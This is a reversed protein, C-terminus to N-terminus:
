TFKSPSSPASCRGKVGLAGAVYLGVYLGVDVGVPIGVAVGVPIGVAAGVPIGVVDTDQSAESSRGLASFKPFQVAVSEEPDDQVFV